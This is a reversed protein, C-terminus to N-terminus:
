PGAGMLLLLGAPRAGRPSGGARRGLWGGGGAPRPTEPRQRAPRKQTPADAAAGRAGGARFSEAVFRERLAVPSFVSTSLRGSFCSAKKLRSASRLIQTKRGGGLSARRTSRRRRPARRFARAGLLKVCSAQKSAQVGDNAGARHRHHRDERQERRAWHARTGPVASRPVRVCAWDEWRAAGRPKTSAWSGWGRRHGGATAAGGGGRRQCFLDACGRSALAAERFGVARVCEGEM